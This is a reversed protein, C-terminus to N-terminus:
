KLHKEPTFYPLNKDKDSIVVPEMPWQIGLQPDNYRIGRENEPSYFESTFYFIETNDELTMFSNACGQPVHIMKRNEATLEVTIHKLFTPSHPRLDVVVDFLSGRTTRFTKDEAKPALQYHIGRLTGRQSSLSNNMQVIKPNLGRQQFERECYARAFFGRDDGRKELEIVFVGKLSTEIFKM